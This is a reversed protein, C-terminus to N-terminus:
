NGRGRSASVQLLVDVKVYAPDDEFADASITGSIERRQGDNFDIGLVFSNADAAADTVIWGRKKFESRYFEVVDDQSDKTLFSVYFNLGGGGRQFTTDLVISDRGGRGKYIPIDSPFGPPLPRSPGLVFPDSSVRGGTQSIDQYTIFITTRGDLESRQVEVQGEVDPNDPRSFAMATFDDSSRAAEVQWPDEDLAKLYFDYVQQPRSGTGMIVFYSTGEESAISFSAVVKAGRFIPFEDPFGPPITGKYSKVSDDSSPGLRIFGDLIGAASSGEGGNGTFAYVLIGVVLAAAAAVGFYPVWAPL